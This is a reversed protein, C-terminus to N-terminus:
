NQNGRTHSGSMRSDAEPLHSAQSCALLAQALFLCLLVKIKEMDKAVSTRRWQSCHALMQM